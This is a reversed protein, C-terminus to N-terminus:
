PKRGRNRLLVTGVMVAVVCLGIAVILNRLLTKAQSTSAATQSNTTLAQAALQSLSVLPPMAPEQVMRGEVLADWDAALLLDVGPNMAKVECSCAGTLFIAIEEVNDATLEVGALGCLARGRGFVPFVLPGKAEALRPNLNVLQSVLLREAPDRRSVRVLSFAIKLTVNVETRPDSPDVPPLEILGALRKSEAQLLSAVKDDQQKDGSELLLWVISDGRLIRQRMERRVPSDVLQQAFAATLPGKAAL